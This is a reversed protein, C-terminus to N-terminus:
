VGVIWKLSETKASANVAKLLGSDGKWVEGSSRLDFYNFPCTLLLPQNGRLAFKKHMLLGDGGGGPPSWQIWLYQM